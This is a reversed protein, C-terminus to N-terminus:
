INNMNNNEHQNNHIVNSVVEQKSNEDAFQENKNEQKKEATEDVGDGDNAKIIGLTSLRKRMSLRISATRNAADMYIKNNKSVEKFRKISKSIFPLCMETFNSGGAILSHIMIIYIDDVKIWYLSLHCFAVVISFSVHLVHQSNAMYGKHLSRMLKMLIIIVFLGISMLKRNSDVKSNDNAIVGHYIGIMGTTVVLVFYGIIPHLWIFLEKRILSNSRFVHSRGNSLKNSNSTNSTNNSHNDNRIIAIINTSNDSETRDISVLEEDGILNRHVSIVFHTGLSFLLMFSFVIVLYSDQIFETNYGAILLGIFAEGLVLLFFEQLRSQIEDSFIAADFKHYYFQMTGSLLVMGIYCIPELIAIIILIEIFYSAGYVSVILIISCIISPITKLGYTVVKDLKNKSSAIYIKKGYLIVLSIRSIIYGIAFGKLYTASVICSGINKLPTDNNINHDNNTQAMAKIHTYSHYSTSTSEANINFAMIFVGLNYTLTMLRHLLDNHLSTIIFCDYIFRTTFMIFFFSAGIVYVEANSGDDACAEIINVSINSMVAVYVLDMFAGLQEHSIENKLFQRYETTFSGFTKRLQLDDVTSDRLSFNDPDGRELLEISPPNKDTPM